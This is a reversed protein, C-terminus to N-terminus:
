STSEDAFLRPLLSFIRSRALSGALIPARDIEMKIADVDAFTTERPIRTALKCVSLRSNGAQGILALLYSFKENGGM